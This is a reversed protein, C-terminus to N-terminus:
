KIIPSRNIKNFEENTSNEPVDPTQKTETLINNKFELITTIYYHGHLWLNEKYYLNDIFVSDETYHYDEKYPKGLKTIVDQKAM